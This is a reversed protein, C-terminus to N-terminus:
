SSYCKDGLLGTTHWDLMNATFCKCGILNDVFKRRRGRKTGIHLPMAIRYLVRMMGTEWFSANTPAASSSSSFSKGWAPRYTPKNNRKRRLRIFNVLEWNCSFRFPHPVTSTSNSYVFLAFMKRHFTLRIYRGLSPRFKQAFHYISWNWKRCEWTTHVKAHHFPLPISHAHLAVESLNFWKIQYM